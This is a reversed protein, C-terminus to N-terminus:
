MGAADPFGRRSDVTVLTPILGEFQACGNSTLCRYASVGLVSLIAILIFAVCALAANEISTAGM